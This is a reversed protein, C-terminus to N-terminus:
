ASRAVRAGNSAQARAIIRALAASILSPWAFLHAMVLGRAGKARTM